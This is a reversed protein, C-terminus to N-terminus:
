QRDRRGGNGEAEIRLLQEPRPPALGLGKAVKTLRKPSKEAGLEVEPQHEVRRLERRRGEQESLQYGVYVADHHVWVRFLCAGVFVACLALWLVATRLPPRM